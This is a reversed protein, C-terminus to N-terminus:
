RELGFRERKCQRESHGAVVVRDRWIAVSIAFDGKGPPLQYRTWEAGDKPSVWVAGPAKTGPQDAVEITVARQGDSVLRDLVTSDFPTPHQIWSDADASNWIENV